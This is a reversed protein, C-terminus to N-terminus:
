AIRLANATLDAPGCHPLRKAYYLYYYSIGPGLCEEIHQFMSVCRFSAVVESTHVIKYTGGRRCRGGVERGM